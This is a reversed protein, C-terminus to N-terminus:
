NSGASNEFSKEIGGCHTVMFHNHKSSWAFALFHSNDRESEIALAIEIKM